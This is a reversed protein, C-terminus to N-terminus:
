TFADLLGFGFCRCRGVHVDQSGVDLLLSCRLLTFAFVVVFWRLLVCRTFAVPCFPSVAAYSRCIRCIFPLATFRRCTFASRLFPFLCRYFDHVRVVWVFTRTIPVLNDRYVFVTVVSRSYRARPLYQVWRTVFRISHYVTVDRIRHGPLRAAHPSVVLLSRSDTFTVTLVFVLCRLGADPFTGAHLLTGFRCDDPTVLYCWCTIHPGLPLRVFTL